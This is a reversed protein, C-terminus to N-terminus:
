NKCIYMTCLTAASGRGSQTNSVGPFGAVLGVAAGAVAYQILITTLEDGVKDSYTKQFQDLAGKM